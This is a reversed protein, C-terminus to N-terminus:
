RKSFQFRRRAGPQGYKKREKVRADRALLGSQKLVARLEASALILARAIGHRLAGSQGVTGGGAINAQIDYKKAMGSVVMPQLAYDRLTQTPFYDEMTRDNVAIKGTGPTLKVRASAEKRRGVAWFEEHAAKTM